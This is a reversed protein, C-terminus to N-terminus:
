EAHWVGEALRVNETRLEENKKELQEVKRRLKEEREEAKMEVAEVVGAVVHLIRWLRVLVLLAIADDVAEKSVIVDLFFAVSVVIADVVEFKHQLFSLGSAFVKIIIEVMM